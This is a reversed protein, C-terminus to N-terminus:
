ESLFYIIKDVAEKDSLKDTDVRLNAIEAYLPNRQQMLFEMKQLPDVNNLLPRNSDGSIREALVKAPADLWVVQGHAKMLARNQPSLIAGGGTSVISDQDSQLADKLAKTELVRFTLEGEDEFIDPIPKGAQAVICDDLDVLKLLLRSALQKGLISKGSGM